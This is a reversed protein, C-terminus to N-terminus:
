SPTAICSRRSSSSTSRASARISPAAPPSAACMLVGGTNSEALLVATPMWADAPAEGKRANAYFVGLLNLAFALDILLIKFLGQRVPNRAILSRMM